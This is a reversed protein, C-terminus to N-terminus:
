EEKRYVIIADVKNEGLASDFIHIQYNKDNFLKKRIDENDIDTRGINEFNYDYIYALVIIGNSNLLKSLKGEILIKYKELYNDKFIDKIYDSINSLLIIDYTKDFHKNLDIFSTCIFNIDKNKIKHKALLYYSKDLYKNYNIKSDKIDYLNNFIESNRFKNGNYDFHRYLGDFFMFTNNSLLEKLKGFIEYSFSNNSITFYNIFEYYNLRKLGVYKLESYYNSFKNIDFTDVTIAGDLIANIAHDGSASVTLVKKNKFNLFKYYSKINETTFSYLKSYKKYKRNTILKLNIAYKIDNIVVYNM